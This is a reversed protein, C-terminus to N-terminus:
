LDRKLLCGSVRYLIYTLVTGPLSNFPYLVLLLYVEKPKEKFHWKATKKRQTLRSEHM